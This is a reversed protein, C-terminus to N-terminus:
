SEDRLTEALEALTAERQRHKWKAHATAEARTLGTYSKGAQSVSAYDYLQAITLQACQDPTWGYRMALTSFIVRWLDERMSAGDLGGQMACEIPSM